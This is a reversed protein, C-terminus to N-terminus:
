LLSIALVTLVVANAMGLYPASNRALELWRRGAALGLWGVAVLAPVTGLGFAALALAGHLAGGAGTAAILAAYILGCPLFGLALGRAFGSFRGRSLRKTLGFDWSLGMRGLAQFAFAMAALGLAAAPIWRAETLWTATAGFGGAVAGLTSYTLLRGVQYPALAATWWRSTSGTAFREAVQALAFPGCMLSCHGLGGLFGALLMSAALPVGTGAGTGVGCIAWFLEL